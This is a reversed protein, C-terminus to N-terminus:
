YLLHSTHAVFFLLHFLVSIAADQLAELEEEPGEPVDVEEEEDDNGDEKLEPSTEKQEEVDEIQPLSSSPPSSANRSPHNEMRAKRRQSRGKGQMPTRAAQYVGMARNKQKQQSKTACTRTGLTAHRAPRQKKKVTQFFRPFDCFKKTVYQVINEKNGEGEEEEGDEGKEEVDSSEM